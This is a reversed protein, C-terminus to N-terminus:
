IQSCRCRGSVIYCNLSDTSFCIYRCFSIRVSQHNSMLEEQFPQSFLLRRFCWWVLFHRWFDPFDAVPSSQLRFCLFLCRRKEINCSAALWWWEPMRSSSLCRVKRHSCRDWSPMSLRLIWQSEPVSMRWNRSVWWRIMTQCPPFLLCHPIRWSCMAWCGSAVRRDSFLVRGHTKCIDIAWLGRLEPTPQSKLIWRKWCSYKVSLCWAATLFSLFLRGYTRITNRAPIMWVARGRPFSLLLLKRRIYLSVPFVCRRCLSICRPRLM